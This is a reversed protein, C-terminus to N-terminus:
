VLSNCRYLGVVDNIISAHLLKFRRVPASGRGPSGPSYGRDRGLLELSYAWSTWSFYTVSLRSLEM